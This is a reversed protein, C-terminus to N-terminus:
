YKILLEENGVEPNPIGAVISQMAPRLADRIPEWAPAHSGSFIKGREWGRPQSHRGRHEADRSAARGSDTGVGARPFWFFSARCEENGVEPNPIGAVISQMAPRLADRIPEWAPAHSGSFIKKSLIFKLLKKHGFFVYM